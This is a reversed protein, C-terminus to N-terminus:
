PSPRREQTDAKSQTSPPPEADRIRLPRRQTKQQQRKRYWENYVRRQHLLHRARSLRRLENLHARRKEARRRWEGRRRKRQQRRWRSRAFLRERRRDNTSLHHAPRVCQHRRCEARRPAIREAGSRAYLLRRIGARYHSDGCWRWCADPGDGRDLLGAAVLAELFNQPTPPVDADHQVELKLAPKSM